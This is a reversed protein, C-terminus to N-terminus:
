AAAEWLKGLRNTLSAPKEAYLRRGLDIARRQLEARREEIRHVLAARTTDDLVGEAAIRQGLVALDHDTGLLEGVEDATHEMADLVDPWIKRLVGFQHRLYKVEKRWEHFDDPRGKARAALMAKRGRRAVDALGAQLTRWGRDRLPWRAVRVLIREFEMAARAKADGEGEGGQLTRHEAVLVARLAAVAESSIEGDPPTVLRDLTEVLVWADRVASLQRAADRLAANEERYVKDGLERRVLRVLARLKKTRKRAEHAAEDPGLETQGTLAMVIQRLENEAARRVADPIPSAPDLTFTM